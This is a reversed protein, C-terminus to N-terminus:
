VAPTIRMQRARPPSRSSRRAAPSVAPQANWSCSGFTMRRSSKSTVAMAKLRAPKNAKGAKAAPSAAVRLPPARPAKKVPAKAAKTAVGQVPGKKPKANPAAKTSGGKAARATNAPSPSPRAKGKRSKPKTGASRRRNGFGPGQIARKWRIRATGINTVARPRTHIRPRWAPTSPMARPSPAAKTSPSPRHHSPRRPPPNRTPGNTRIRTATSAGRGKM